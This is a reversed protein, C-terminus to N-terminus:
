PEKVNIDQDVLDSDVDIEKPSEEKVDRAQRTPHKGSATMVYKGAPVGKITYTFDVPKPPPQGPILPPMKVPETKGTFKKKPDDKATLLIAIKDCPKGGVFARGQVSFKMGSAGAPEAKTVIFEGGLKPDSTNTAVDTAIIWVRNQTLKREPTLYKNGDVKKSWTRRDAALAPRDVDERIRQEPAELTVSQFKALDEKVRPDAEPDGILARVSKVRGFDEVVASIVVGANEGEVVRLPSPAVPTISPGETDLIVDTPGRTDEFVQGAIRVAVRIRVPVNSRSLTFAQADEGTYDGLTAEINMIGDKDFATRVHEVRDSLVPDGGPQDDITLGMVGGHGDIRFELPVRVAKGREGKIPFFPPAPSELKAWRYNTTKDIKGDDEPSIEFVFVRPCGDVTVFIPLRKGARGRKPVYGSLTLTKDTQMRDRTTDGRPVYSPESAESVDLALSFGDPPQTVGSKPTVQIELKGGANNYTAKADVYREPRLIRFDVWHYWTLKPSGTSPEALDTIKFIVGHRLDPLPAKKPDAPAAAAPPQAAPPGAIKADAPKAADAPKEVKVESPDFPFVLPTGAALVLKDRKLNPTSDLSQHPIDLDGRASFATTRDEPPAQRPLLVEVSVERKAKGASSLAFRLQQEPRNPYLNVQWVDLWTQSNPQSTPLPGGSMKKEDDDASLPFYQKDRVHTIALDVYEPGIIEVDVPLPPVKAGGKVKVTLLLRAKREPTSLLDKARIMLPPLTSEADRSLVVPDKPQTDFVLIDPQDRDSLELSVDAEAGAKGNWSYKVGLAFPEGLRVPISLSRATFRLTPKPDPLWARRPLPNFEGVLPMADLADVTRLRRERERLLAMDAEAPLPRGIERKWLLAHRCLQRGIARYAEWYDEERSPAFGEVAIRRIRDVSTSAAAVTSEAVDPEFTYLAKAGDYAISTGGSNDFQCLRLWLDAWCAPQKGAVDAKAPKAERRQSSGTQQRARLVDNNDLAIIESRLRTLGTLLAVEGSGWADDLTADELA